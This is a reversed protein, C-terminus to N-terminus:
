DYIVSNINVDRHKRLIFHALEMSQRRDLKIFADGQSVTFNSIDECHAKLPIFDKGDLIVDERYDM